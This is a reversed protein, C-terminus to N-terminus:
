AKAVRQLRGSQSDSFGTFGGFVSFGSAYSFRRKRSDFHRSEFGRGKPGSGFIQDTKRKNGVENQFKGDVGMKSTRGGTERYKWANGFPKLSSM